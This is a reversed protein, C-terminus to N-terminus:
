KHSLSTEQSDREACVCVHIFVKMLLNFLMLCSWLSDAAPYTVEPFADIEGTHSSPASTVYMIFIANCGVYSVGYM